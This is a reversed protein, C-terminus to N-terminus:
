NQCYKRYKSFYTKNNLFYKKLNENNKIKNDELKTNSGFLSNAIEFEFILRPKGSPLTGKHFCSTDGIIVTGMKGNISKIKKEGYHREIEEDDIRQYGKKLFKYPKSFIKHTSEVYKHPGNEDNVDTLYFFIKLWKLRELDFHYKQANEDLDINSYNTSWWMNVAALVPEAKLYNKAINIFYPNSIIELVCNESILEEECYRYTSMFTVEKGTYHQYGYNKNQSKFSLKKTLNKLNNVDQETIKKSDLFYGNKNLTKVIEINNKVNYFLSLSFFSIITNLIKNIVGSTLCYWFVYSQYTKDNNKKTLLYLLIGYIFFFTSVILKKSFKLIIKFM